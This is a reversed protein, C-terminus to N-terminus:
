HMRRQMEWEWDNLVQDWTLVDGANAEAFATADEEAEFATIGSGMPTVVDMSAVYFASTGDLWELSDADHVWVRREQLGEEQIVFIMEGIDDFILAEGDEDVIGGAYREESIIMNCRSCVDRGYDIDPPQDARAEEGCGAIVLMGVLLLPLTFGRTIM